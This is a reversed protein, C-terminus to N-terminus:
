VGKKEKNKEKLLDVSWKNFFKALYFDRIDKQKEYKEICFKCRENLYKIM